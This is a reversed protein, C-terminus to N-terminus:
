KRWCASPKVPTRHAAAWETSIDPYLWYIAFIFCLYIMWICYVLVFETSESKSCHSWRCTLQQSSLPPSLPPTSMNFPTDSHYNPIFFLFWSGKVLWMHFRFEWRSSTFRDRLSELTVQDSLQWQFFCCHFLLPPIESYGSYMQEWGVWCSIGNWFIPSLSIPELILLVDIWVINM